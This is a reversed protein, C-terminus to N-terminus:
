KEGGHYEPQRSYDVHTQAASNILDIVARSSITAATIADVKTAGDVMDKAVLLKNQLPSMGVFQNTFDEETIRAGLGPTEAHRLIVVKTIRGEPSFGVIGDINGSYGKGTRALVAVGAIEGDLRAPYVAAGEVEPHEWIELAPDNNYEPLAVKVADMRRAVRNSQIKENTVRDTIGLAAGSLVAILTLVGVMAVVTNPMKKVEVQVNDSM